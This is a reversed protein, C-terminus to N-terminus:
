GGEGRQKNTKSLLYFGRQRESFFVPSFIVQYTWPCLPGEWFGLAIQMRALPFARM